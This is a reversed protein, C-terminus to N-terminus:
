SWATTNHKDRLHFSTCLRFLQDICLGCSRHLSIERPQSRASCAGSHECTKSRKSMLHFSSPTTKLCEMVQLAGSQGDRMPPLFIFEICTTQLYKGSLKKSSHYVQAGHTEAIMGQQRQGAKRFLHSSKFLGTPSSSSHAAARYTNELM